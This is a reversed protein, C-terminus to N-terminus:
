VWFLTLQIGSFGVNGHYKPPKLGESFHHVEDTPIIFNWSTGGVSHFTMFIMNWVVLMGMIHQSCHPAGGTIFQNIFGMFVMTIQLDYVMTIPTIKVVKAIKPPECQIM